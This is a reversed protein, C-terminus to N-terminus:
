IYGINHLVSRNHFVLVTRVPSWCSDTRTCKYSSLLFFMFLWLRGYIRGKTSQSWQTDDPPRRSKIENVFKELYKGWKMLMCLPPLDNPIGKFAICDLGAGLGSRGWYYLVIIVKKGCDAFLSFSTMFTPQRPSSCWLACVRRARLSPAVSECWDCSSIEEECINSQFKWLVAFCKVPFASFFFVDTLASGSRTPSRRRTM